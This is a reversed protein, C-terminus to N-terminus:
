NKHAGHAKYYENYKMDCDRIHSVYSHFVSYILDNVQKPDMLEAAQKKVAVFRNRIASHLETHEQSGPYEIDILFIEEDTFHTHIFGQIFDLVKQIEEPPVHDATKLYETWKVLKRHQQDIVPNGSELDDTWYKLKESM